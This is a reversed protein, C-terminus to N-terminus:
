ITGPSVIGLIGESRRELSQQRAAREVTRIGGFEVYSGDSAQGRDGALVSRKGVGDIASQFGGERRAPDRLKVAVLGFRHTMGQRAPMGDHNRRGCRALRQAVVDRNQIRDQLVSRAPREVQKGGLREGLILQGLKLCQAFRELRAGALRDTGERVVAICRLVRSTGNAGAGVQNEAIGIHEVGPDQRVMWAPRFQELIQAVDDDVLQVRVAAHEAAMEAVHQPAQAPDAAM